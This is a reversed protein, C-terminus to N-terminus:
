GKKLMTANRSSYVYSYSCKWRASLSSAIETRTRIRHAYILKTVTTRICAVDGGTSRDPASATPPTWRTSSSNQESLSLSLSLSALNVGWQGHKTEGITNEGMCERRIGQQVGLVGQRQQDGGRLRGHPPEARLPDPPSFNPSWENNWKFPTLNLM